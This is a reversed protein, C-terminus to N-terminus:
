LGRIKLDSVLQVYFERVDFGEINERNLDIMDGHSIGRTGSPKLCTYKEGWKFSKEAVLGDNEGDFFKVLHYSFNLPFKGGSASKLVSGVSQCFIGEPIEQEAERASATLDSVAALFDPSTDGFKRAASNYAEALKNKAKEPMMNLLYEAFECGRHPTNVTTLSAIFPAMGMKVIAEKTDIGGKSHAIINVKEAGTEELIEKIRCSIEAASEKVAAASQHEGYFIEAGNRKLERPIRGWYNLRESDRFFVGHVLLLPYKTKCIKDKERSRNVRDKEAEFFVERLTVTIITRLVILNVVPIMGCLIGVVRHRIGLQVSTCYVSIIGNWFLIFHAAFCFAASKLLTGPNGNATILMLAHWIISLVVAWVFIVLCEAGHSLLKQRVGRVTFDTFGAMLNVAIFCLIAPLLLDHESKTAFYSNASFAFLILFLIRFAYRFQSM